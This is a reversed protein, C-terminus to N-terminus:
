IIGYMERWREMDQELKEAFPTGEKVKVLGFHRRLWPIIENEKNVYVTATLVGDQKKIQADPFLKLLTDKMQPLFQLEVSFPEGQLMVGGTFSYRKARELQEKYQAPEFAEDTIEVGTIRDLRVARIVGNNYAALLYRKGTEANTVIELPAAIRQEREMEDKADQEAKERKKETWLEKKGLKKEAARREEAIRKEETSRKYEHSRHLDVKRREEYACILKWLIDDDLVQEFHSNAMVFPSTYGSSTGREEFVAKASSFLMNGCLYPHVINRMLSMLDLFQEADDGIWSFLNEALFYRYKNSGEVKRRTIYGLKEMESVRELMTNRDGPRGVMEHLEEFGEPEYYCAQLIRIYSLLKSCAITKAGYTDCLYNYGNRYIDNKLSFTKKGNVRMRELDDESHIYSELMSKLYNYDRDNIGMGRADDITFDDYLFQGRVLRRICEYDRVFRVESDKM